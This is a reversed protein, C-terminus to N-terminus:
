YYVQEKLYRYSYFLETYSGFIRDVTKRNWNALVYSYGSRFYYFTIYVSTKFCRLSLIKIAKCYLNYCSNISNRYFKCYMWSAYMITFSHLIQKIFGKFIACNITITSVGIIQKFFLKFFNFVYFKHYSSFTIGFSFMFRPLFVNNINGSFSNFCHETLNSRQKRLSNM